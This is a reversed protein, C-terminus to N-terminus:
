ALCCAAPADGADGIVDSRGFAAIAPGFGVAFLGRAPFLVGLVPGTALFADALRAAAALFFFGLCVALALLELADGALVALGAPRPVPLLVFYCIM